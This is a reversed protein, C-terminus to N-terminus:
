LQIKFINFPFTGKVPKGEILNVEKLNEPLKDFYVDFTLMAEAQINRIKLTNREKIAETILKGNLRVNKLASMKIKKSQHQIYYKNPNTNYLNVRSHKYSYCRVSFITHQATTTVKDLYITNHNIKEVSYTSHTQPHKEQAASTLMAPDITYDNISIVIDKFLDTQHWPHKHVYLHLLKENLPRTFNHQKFRIGKFELSRRAEEITQQAKFSQSLIADGYNFESRWFIFECSIKTFEAPAATKYQEFAIDLSKDNISEAVLQNNCRINLIRIPRHMARYNHCTWSQDSQPSELRYMKDTNAKQFSVCFVIFPGAYVISDIFSQKNTAKYVPYADIGDSNSHLEIDNPSHQANLNFIPFLLLLCYYKLM